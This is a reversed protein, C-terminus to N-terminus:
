SIFQLVDFYLSLTWLCRQFSSLKQHTDPSSYWGKWFLLTANSVSMQVFHIGANQINKQLRSYKVGRLSSDRVKQDNITGYLVCPCVLLLINKKNKNLCTRQCNKLLHCVLWGHGCCHGTILCLPFIFCFADELQVNMSPTNAVTILKILNWKLSFLM